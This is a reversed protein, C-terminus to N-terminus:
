LRTEDDSDQYTDDERGGDSKHLPETLTVARTEAEAVADSVGLRFDDENSSSSMVITKRKLRRTPEASSLAKPVKSNNGKNMRRQMQRCQLLSCCAQHLKCGESGLHLKRHTSRQERTASFSDDERSYLIFFFISKPKQALKIVSEIRM